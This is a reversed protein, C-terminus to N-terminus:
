EKIIRAWEELSQPKRSPQPSSKPQMSRMTQPSQYTMRKRTAAGQESRKRRRFLAILLLLAILGPLLWIWWVSWWTTGTGTQSTYRSTTSHSASTTKITTPLSSTTKSSSATKSTTTTRSTTTSSTQTAFSHSPTVSTATTTAEPVVQAAQAEIAGGVWIQQPSTAFLSMLSIVILITAFPSTTPSSKKVRHRGRLLIRKGRLFQPFLWSRVAIHISACRGRQENEYDNHCNHQRESWEHRSRRYAQVVPRRVGTATRGPGNVDGM